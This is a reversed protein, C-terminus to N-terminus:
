SKDFNKQDHNKNIEKRKKDDSTLLLESLISNDKVEHFITTYREELNTNSSKKSMQQSYLKAEKKSYTKIHNSPKKSQLDNQLSYKENLSVITVQIEDLENVYNIRIKIIPEDYNHSINQSMLESFFPESYDKDNKEEM